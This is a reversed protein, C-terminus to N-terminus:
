SLALFYYEKGGQQLYRYVINGRDLVHRPDREKEGAGGSHLIEQAYNRTIAHHCARILMGGRFVYSMKGEGPEVIVLGERGFRSLFRQRACFSNVFRITERHRAAQEYDLSESARIMREELVAAISSADGQLFAAAKEVIAAYEITSVEGFCPGSCLGASCRMCRGVPMPDGCHRLGLNRCILDRLDDIFFHDGFPGFLRGPPPERAPDSTALGPFPAETIVLYQYQCFDKQKVNLEPMHRKILRDELILALLESDTASFRIDDIPLERKFRARSQQGTFYSKVRNRINVSKGIYFIRGRGDLFMYIGPRSPLSEVKKMLLRRKSPGEDRRPMRLELNMSSPAASRLLSATALRGAEEGKISLRVISEEDIGALRKKIEERLADEQEISEPIEIDIMPRAHLAKFEMGRLRWSEQDHDFTLLYFGKTEDKEAFSTRETSGPYIVPVSDAREASTCRLVQARHIHGSLIAHFGSPIDAARIVHDGQRFTYDSPGVQAGEVAEHMCLLKLDAGGTEARFREVLSRFAGRIKGRFSPFGSLAVRAGKLEETYTLPDHFIKINRHAVFLSRPLRSREHNGPVLFLPIGSTAFEHLREYARNVIIDPVLSRFFLDGGHVVLDVHQERAFDLVKEYNTFFDDGRRRKEVRPRLPYDFGLHTDAFLLITIM